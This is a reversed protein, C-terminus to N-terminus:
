YVVGLHLIPCWTLLILKDNCASSTVKQVSLALTNHHILPYLWVNLDNMAFLTTSIRMDELGSCYLCTAVAVFGTSKRVCPTLVSSNTLKCVQHSPGPYIFPFSGDHDFFALHYKSLFSAKFSVFVFYMDFDSKSLVQVISSVCPWIGLKCSLRSSAAIQRNFGSLNELQVLNILTCAQTM